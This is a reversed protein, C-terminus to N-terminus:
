FHEYIEFSAECGGDVWVSLLERGWTVGEVCKANSTENILYADSIVGEIMCRKFCSDTSSCELIFSTRGGNHSPDHSRRGSPECQNVDAHALMSVAFSALIFILKKM